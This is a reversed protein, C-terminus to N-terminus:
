RVYKGVTSIMAGQVRFDAFGAHGADSEMSLSGAVKIVISRLM